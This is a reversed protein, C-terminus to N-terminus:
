NYVLSIYCSINSLEIWFLRPFSIKSFSNLHVLKNNDKILIFFVSYYDDLHRYIFSHYFNYQISIANIKILYVNVLNSSKYVTSILM